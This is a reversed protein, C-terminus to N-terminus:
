RLKYVEDKMWQAWQYDTKDKTFMEPLVPKGVVINIMKGNQKSLEDMLFLMEINFKIGLFKRINAIRYFRNTLRGEIYVPIVPKQYKKAKTVFTKKWELDKIKGKIKRSVLGAPFLFTAKDSAFQQEVRQLSQSSSRGLKNVGIFRSKLSEFSALFDNVIFMIDPRIDKLLYIMAIADMGGFPHNSVFICPQEVPLVNEAGKLNLTVSIYETVSAECFGFADDERHRWIFDNAREQHVIKEIWRIVFEPLWKLFEPNKKSIFKRIEIYKEMRENFILFM